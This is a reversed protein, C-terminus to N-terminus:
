GRSDEPLNELKRLRRREAVATQFISEIHTMNSGEVLSTFQSLTENVQDQSLSLVSIRQSLTGAMTAALSAHTAFTQGTEGMWYWYDPAGTGSKLVEQNVEIFKELDQDVLCKDM